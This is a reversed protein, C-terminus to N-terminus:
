KLFLPTKFYRFNNKEPEPLRGGRLNVQLSPYFLRPPSLNLDRRQRAAIFESLTTHRHLLYNTAQEEDVSSCFSLERGQPQYDHGVFIRTFNPLTYINDHISQYLQRASGRPFDCRGTGSDPMLLADGTFLADGFLFSCCAPTHGPTALVKFSLTGAMVTENHHLLRDFQSGDGALPPNEHFVPRFFKQVVTVAQSIAIKAQPYAQKLFYAASLHDAHVHTELIMRLTLGADQIFDKLIKLNVRSVVASSPEFDLVPDIVVTDRSDEDYVVYTLTSTQCDFFHNIQM